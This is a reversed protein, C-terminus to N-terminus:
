LSSQCRYTMYWEYLTPTLNGAPNSRLKIRIRSYLKGDETPLLTSGIDIPVSHYVCHGYGYASSNMECHSSIRYDGAGFLGNECPVKVDPCKAQWLVKPKDVFQCTGYDSCFGNGKGPVGVCEKDQTCEGQATVTVKTRMSGSADSWVCKDLEDQSDATCLEFDIAAGEPIDAKFYLDKWSPLDNSRPNFEYSGDPQLELKCSTADITQQYVGESQYSGPPPPLMKTTPIIFVPIEDLLYKGNGKLQLKFLYGGYQNNPNPPVPASEPNTFTVKFKPAAGPRCQYQTSCNYVGPAGSCAGSADVLPHPTKCNPSNQPTISIQFRSAGPDPGDIASLSVDMALHSALEAISKVLATGTGSGNSSIKQWIPTGDARVAGTATALLSAQAEGTSVFDGSDGQTAVVPLVHVGSAVLADRTTTWTPPNYTTQTKASTQGIQLQFFGADTARVGKVAVYYTGPDLTRSFDLSRTDWNSNRLTTPQADSACQLRSGMASPSSVSDYMNLAYSGQGGPASGKVLLTYDKGAKVDYDIRATGDTGGACALRHDQVTDLDRVRLRYGGKDLVGKGKVVVYHTGAALNAEIASSKNPGGNDDCALRNGDNQSDLDQARLTYTGNAGASTGSVLAYYTGAPYLGEIKGGEAACAVATSGAAASLSVTDEVTLEYPGAEGAANGKVVVYYDHNSEFSNYTLSSGSVCALQVGNELGFHSVDRFKVAYAGGNTSEGSVVVHYDGAPLAQLIKKNGITPSACAVASTLASDRISLRFPQSATSWTFTKRKVVLYYDGAALTADIRSMGPLEGSDDDCNVKVGFVDTAYQTDFVTASAPYVALVTDFASGETDISIARQSSLTFKYVADAAGPSAGCGMSAGAGATEVLLGYSGSEAATKGKVVLYYPTNAQLDYLLEQGAPDCSVQTAATAAFNLNNVRVDYAGGGGATTSTVVIRYDGAGLTQTLKLGNGSNACGLAASGAILGSADFLGIVTTNPSASADIQVDSKASLTFAYVADHATAAAGCSTVDHDHAMASTDGLEISQRGSTAVDLPWATSVDEFGGPGCPALSMTRAQTRTRGYGGGGGAGSRTSSGNTGDVGSAGSTSSGAGGTAPSGSGAGAGGNGGNVRVSGPDIALTAGELLIAGGSGGGTGGFSSFTPLVGDSGAANIVGGTVAVGGLASIQLAGGGFGQRFTGGTKGGNCGGVLPVLQSNGRVAGAAGGNFGGAATTNGGKGGATGFGGGGGGGSWTADASADLNSCGLNGGPGATGLTLDGGAHITGEITASGTAVLILPRNGSVRLTAGARVRFDHALLVVADSGGVQTQVYATPVGNCWNNFSVVSAGAGDPDTTDISPTACNLDVDTAGAVAPAMALLTARTLNRPAAGPSDACTNDETISSTDVLRAPPGNPGQFLSLVADYGATPNAKVHVRAATTTQLKYVTDKGGDAAGCSGPYDATASATSAGGITVRKGYVDGLDQITLDSNTAAVSVQTQADSTMSGMDGAYNLWQGVVQAPTAPNANAAVRDDNALPVAAPRSMPGDKFLRIVPDTMTSASADIEVTTTEGLSFAFMADHGDAASGCAGLSVDTDSVMSTTNGEYRHTSNGFSVNESTAIAENPNGDANLDHIVPTTPPPGDFLGIVPTTLGSGKPTVSVKLGTNQSPRLKYVADPSATAASCITGSAYDGTMGGTTTDVVSIKSRYPDPLAYASAGRENTPSSNSVTTRAQYLASFQLGYAGVTATTTDAVVYYTHNAEVEVDVSAAPTMSSGAGCAMRIGSGGLATTDSLKLKYSGELSTSTGDVVIYYTRSALLDFTLTSGGAADCTRYGTSDITGEFLGIVPNYSSGATDINLKFGGTTVIKFVADGAGVTGGCAGMLVAGNYDDAMRLTSGQVSIVSGLPNVTQATAADESPVAPYTMNGPTTDECIYFTQDDAAAGSSTCRKDEWRGGKQMAACKQSTTENPEGAAWNTYSLPTSDRWIFTTGSPMYAGIHHGYSTTTNAVLKGLFAQEAANNVIALYDMGATTCRTNAEDSYRRTPCVTYVRAAATSPEHFSFAQCNTDPLTARAVDFANLVVPATGASPPGDFVALVPYFGSVGPTAAIRVTTNGSPTFKYVQDLGGAAAGCGVTATLFDDTMGTLSSGNVKTSVQGLVNGVDFPFVRDNGNTNTLVTAAGPVAAYLGVVPDWTASSVDLAIRTTRDLTFKFMADNAAAAGGCQVFDYTNPLSTTGTGVDSLTYVKSNLSGLDYATADTGNGMVNNRTITAPPLGDHLSIVTDYSSGETDIRVKRPTAVNFKFVTERANPDANCGVLTDNFGLTTAVPDSAGTWTASMTAQNGSLAVITAPASSWGTADSLALGVYLLEPHSLGKILASGSTRAGSMTLTHYSTYDAHISAVNSDGLREIYAGDITTAATPVAAATAFTDNDNTIGTQAPNSPLASPKGEHLSLSVPFSSTTADFVIRADAGPRFTYSAQNTLGDASCGSIGGWLGPASMAGSTTGVYSLYQGDPGSAVVNAVKDMVDQKTSVAAPIGQFLSVVAGFETAPTPDDTGSALWTPNWRGYLKDDYADNKTLHFNVPIATTGSVRFTILADPATNAASCGIITSPYDGAMDATNGVVTYYNGRVDGLPFATSFGEATQPVYHATKDSASETSGSTWSNLSALDSYPCGAGRGECNTPESTSDGPGNHSPRDTLYVVIPVADPRFCAYGFAGAVGCGQAASRDPISPRNIGFYHGKGSVLSYLAMFGGEPEDWNYNMSMDRLADRVRTYDPTMDILHRFVIEDRDGYRQGEGFVPVPEPEKHLPLERYFGTGFWSTGVLCRVAGVVGQTKLDNDPAGDNNADACNVPGGCYMTQATACNTQNNASVIGTCTTNTGCCQSLQACNVVNGTTLTNVLNDREDIMTGTTDLLFYVDANNLKFSVNLSNTGSEGVDLQHFITQNATTSFPKGDISDVANPIGDCDVDPDTGLVCNPVPGTITGSPCYTAKEKDCKTDPGSSATAQCATRLPGSLTTCCAALGACGVPVPGADVGADGVGGEGTGPLLVLGGNKGFEVSGGAVGGEILLDDIVKFCKLDCKNCTERGANPVIIGQTEPKKDLLYTHVSDCGSWRGESCVRTGEFCQTKGDGLEKVPLFCAEVAGELCEPALAGGAPSPVANTCASLAMATAFLWAGAIRCRSM